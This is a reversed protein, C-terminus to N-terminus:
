ASRPEAGERDPEAEARGLSRLIHRVAERDDVERALGLAERLLRVGDDHRGAHLLVAAMNALLVHLDEHGSARAADVAQRILALADDHRGQMDLITSLDSMLVLTQHHQPGQEQRCIDLAKRYDDAAQTLRQTSALYRARSDLCLGLLLRTDKRLVEDAETLQDAPTEQLKQVKVELTELCFRFGHEALEAKNQQAYMAALKLSMEVFANDDQPTGGALMYSMAAKFLKEAQSYTYVIAPRHRQRQAIVAAAHLFSSAAELEGRLISLKAKKLLAILEEEESAAEESSGSLSFAAVAAAAVKKWVERKQRRGPGEDPEGAWLQSTEAANRQAGIVRRLPANFFGLSSCISGSPRTSSGFVQVFACASAQKYVSLQLASRMSAAAM